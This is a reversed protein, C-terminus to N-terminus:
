RAAWVGDGDQCNSMLASAAVEGTRQQFQERAALAAEVQSLPSGVGPAVLEAAPQAAEPYDGASLTDNKAYGTPSPESSLAVGRNTLALKDLPHSSWHKLLNSSREVVDWGMYLDPDFNV